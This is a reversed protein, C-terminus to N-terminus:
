ARNTQGMMPRTHTTTALRTRARLGAVRAPHHFSVRYTVAAHHRDGDSQRPQELTDRSGFIDARDDGEQRRVLGPPDGAVGDSHVTTRLKSAPPGPSKPQVRDLPGRCRSLM